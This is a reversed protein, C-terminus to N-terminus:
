VAEAVVEALELKAAARAKLEETHATEYADRAAQVESQAQTPEIGELSQALEALIICHSSTVEAVGERIAFRQTEGNKRVQVVGAKLVSVLPSHGPLVGFEGQVGPASVYDAEGSFFIKEPTIIQLNFTQAM